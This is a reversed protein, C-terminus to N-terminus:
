IQNEYWLLKSVVRCDKWSYSKIDNKPNNSICINNNRANWLIRLLLFKKFISRRHRYRIFDFNKDFINELHNVRENCSYFYGFYDNSNSILRSTINMLIKDNKLENNIWDIGENLIKTLPHPTYLKIEYQICEPISDWLSM